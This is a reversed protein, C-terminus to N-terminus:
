VYKYATLYSKNFNFLFNNRIKYKTKYNLALIKKLLLMM